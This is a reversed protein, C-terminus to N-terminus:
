IKRSLASLSTFVCHTQSERSGQFISNALILTEEVYKMGLVYYGSRFVRLCTKELWVRRRGVVIPKLIKLM